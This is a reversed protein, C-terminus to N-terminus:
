DPRALSAREAVAIEIQPPPRTGEEVIRRAAAEGIARWPLHVSTLPPLSRRALPTDGFGVVGLMEPVAIGAQAAAHLMGVAMEDNGALVVSPRPSIELLLRGAEIGSEFTDDGQVLLAPGRDLGHEAMADLYGLERERATASGDPGAIFGIRAHGLGVLWGVAAACAAREDLGAGAKDIRVCAAGAAECMAALDQRASLAPSLIVGRVGRRELMRALADAREGPLISLTALVNPGGRLADAIGSELADRVECGPGEHILLLLDAPPASVGVAALVPAPLPALSSGHDPVYGAREIASAPRKRLTATAVPADPRPM